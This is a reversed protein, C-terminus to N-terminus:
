LFSPAHLQCSSRPSLLTRISPARSQAETKAFAVTFGWCINLNKEPNLHPFSLWLGVSLLLTCRWLNFFITLSGSELKLWTKLILRYLLYIFLHFTLPHLTHCVPLWGRSNFFFHAQQRKGFLKVHFLNQLRNNLWIMHFCVGGM